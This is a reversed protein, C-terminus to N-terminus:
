SKNPEPYSCSYIPKKKKQHPIFESSLFYPLQQCFAQNFSLIQSRHPQSSLSFSPPSFLGKCMAFKGQLINALKQLQIPSLLSFLYNRFFQSTTKASKDFHTSLLYYKMIYWPFCGLHVFQARIQFYYISLLLLAFWFYFFFM